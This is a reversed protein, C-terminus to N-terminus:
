APTPWELWRHLFEFTGEGHITHPGNFVELECREGVGLLNYRRFSKAYEYSVWEDPAVGDHHGREVMFPRPCILWSMEAHNFTNGLDWESMEYEGTFLYSYRHRSSACKWIWENYDASCISLCYGDLLAPVRMATKGGYSIGYFAIREPDVFPQKGLWELIREHQRTIFSFLSLGLPNAQRQLSRFRDKGLYPNQPAFVIFGREALRYAFRHYANEDPECVKQPTGELGHQAVVVPRREGPKLDKPLLLIGYAFIDPHVDLVVEYGTVTETDYCQRTRPDAPISAPELAGIVDSWLRERYAKTSEAWADLDGDDAESWYERRQYEAERLLHENHEVLQRFQRHLRASADVPDSTWFPLSKAAVLHNGGLARGFARLWPETGPEEPAPFVKPVDGEALPGVREAEALVAEYGPRTLKGPTPGGNVEPPNFPVDVAPPESAEIFLPRPAILAALEADGFEALYRWVNRYIPEKHLEERPGFYGSVGVASLEPELAGAALALLGGEGYGLIGLPRESQGRLFAAASLIRLLEYGIVHRGLEFAARYIFERHPQQTFRVAPHGSWTSARDLLTPVLVRFGSDALKRAFQANDPVGPALGISQEPSWDCDGLAIVDAIPPGDPVLLLGEGDVQGFARWRVVLVDFGHGRARRPASWSSAPVPTQLTMWPEALPDVAGLLERLRARRAAVPQNVPRAERAITTARHLWTAIGDVMRAALDGDRTLERTGDLVNAM